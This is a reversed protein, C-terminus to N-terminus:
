GFRGHFAEWFSVAIRGVAEGPELDVNARTPTYGRETPPAPHGNLPM